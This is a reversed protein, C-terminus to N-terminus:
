SLELRFGFHEWREGSPTTGEVAKIPTCEMSVALRKPKATAGTAYLEGAKKREEGERRCWRAELSVKVLIWVSQPLEGRM